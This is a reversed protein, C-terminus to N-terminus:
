FEKNTCFLMELLLNLLNKRVALLESADDEIFVQIFSVGSAPALKSSLPEGLGRASPLSSIPFAYSRGTEDLFYVRQNTKGVAHSLYQDGARYNLNAADTDADGIEDPLVARLLL